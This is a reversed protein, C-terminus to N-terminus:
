SKTLDKSEDKVEVKYKKAVFYIYYIELIAFTNLVLLAIFWRTHSLRASKWLAIGKWPLVWLINIVALIVITEPSLVDNMRLSMIDFFCILALFRSTEPVIM